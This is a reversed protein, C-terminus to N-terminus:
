PNLTVPKPSTIEVAGFLSASPLSPKKAYVLAKSPTNLKHVPSMGLCSLDAGITGSHVGRMMGISLLGLM